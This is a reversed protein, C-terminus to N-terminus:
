SKMNRSTRLTLPTTLQQQRSLSVSEDWDEDSDEEDWDPEEEEKEEAEAESKEDEKDDVKSLAQERIERLEDASKGDAKADIEARTTQIRYEDRKAQAREQFSIDDDKAQALRDSARGREAAVEEASKEIKRLIRTPAAAAPTASPAKTRKQLRPYTALWTLRLSRSHARSLYLSLPHPRHYGAYRRRELTRM